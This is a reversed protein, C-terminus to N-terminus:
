VAERSLIDLEDVLLLLMMGTLASELEAGNSAAEDEDPRNGEFSLLM